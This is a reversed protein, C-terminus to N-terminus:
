MGISSLSECERNTGSPGVTKAIQQAVAENDLPGLYQPNDTQAVYLLVGRLDPEASLPNRQFM